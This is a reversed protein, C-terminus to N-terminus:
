CIYKQGISQKDFYIIMVIMFLQHADNDVIGKSKRMPALYALRRPMVRKAVLRSAASADDDHQMIYKRMM